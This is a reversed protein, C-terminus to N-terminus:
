KGMNRGCIPCFAFHLLVRSFERQLNPRRYRAFYGSWNLVTESLYSHMIQTLAHLNHTRPHRLLFKKIMGKKDMELRIMMTGELLEVFSIASGQITKLQFTNKKEVSLLAAMQKGSETWQLLEIAMCSIGSFINHEKEKMYKLFFKEAGSDLIKANNFIRARAGSLIGKKTPYREIAQQKLTLQHGLLVYEEIRKVSLLENKFDFKTGEIDVFYKATKEVAVLLENFLTRLKEIDEDTIELHVGHILFLPYSSHGGLLSLIENCREIIFFAQQVEKRYKKLYNKPTIKNFFPAASFYLYRTCNRIHEAALLLKRIRHQNESIETKCIKEVGDLCCLVYSFSEHSCIRSIMNLMENYHVGEMAFHTDETQVIALKQINGKVVDLDLIHQRGIRIKKKLSTKEVM